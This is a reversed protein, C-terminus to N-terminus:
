ILVWKHAQMLHGDGYVITVETFDVVKVPIEFKVGLVFRIKRLNIWQQMWISM